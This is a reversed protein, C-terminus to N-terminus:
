VRKRSNPIKGFGLVVTIIAGVSMFALAVAKTLAEYDLRLKLAKHAEKAKQFSMAMAEKAVKIQVEEVSPLHPWAIIYRIPEKQTAWVEKPVLRFDLAGVAGASLRLRPVNRFDSSVCTTCVNYHGYGHSWAASSLLIALIFLLAAYAAAHAWSFSALFFSSAPATKNANIYDILRKEFAKEAERRAKRSDM